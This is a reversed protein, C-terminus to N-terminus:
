YERFLCAAPKRHDNGQEHYQAVKDHPLKSDQGNIELGEQILDNQMYPLIRKCKDILLIM